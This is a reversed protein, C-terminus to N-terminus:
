EDKELRHGFAKMKSHDIGAKKLAAKGQVTVFVEDGDILCLGRSALKRAFHEEVPENDLIKLLNLIDLQTLRAAM